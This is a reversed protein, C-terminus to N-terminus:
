RWVLRSRMAADTNLSTKFTKMAQHELKGCSPEVAYPLYYNAHWIPKMKKEKKEWVFFHVSETGACETFHYAVNNASFLASITGASEHFVSRRELVAIGLFPTELSTMKLRVSYYPGPVDSKKLIDCEESAERQVVGSYIKQKGTTQVLIVEKGEPRSSKPLSVCARQGDFNVVGFDNPFPVNKEAAASCSALGIAISFIARFYHASQMYLINLVSSALLCCKGSLSM